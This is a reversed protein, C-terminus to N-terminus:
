GIASFTLLNKKGEKKSVCLFVFHKSSVDVKFLYSLFSIVDCLTKYLLQNDHVM